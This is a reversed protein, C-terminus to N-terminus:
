VALSVLAFVSGWLAACFTRSNLVFLDVQISGALRGASVSVVWDLRGGILCAGQWGTREESRHRGSEIEMPSRGQRNLGILITHRCLEVRGSADSDGITIGCVIWLM